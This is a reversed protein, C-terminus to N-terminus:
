QSRESVSFYLGHEIPKFHSLAREAEPTMLYGGWRPPLTAEPLVIIDASEIKAVERQTQRATMLGEVFFSGAPPEFEPYLIEVAGAYHLVAARRGKSLALVRSWEDRVQPSSWLNATVPTRSTTRWAAISDKVLGYYTGAAIVIIACFAYSHLPREIPVAAAGAILIYSYYVWSGSNGFFVFVFALHLCACSFIVADRRTAISDATTGINEWLRRAAPIAGWVLYATAVLWLGIVTGAYYHWNVHPADWLMSGTGGFFGMNQVRYADAGSIPFATRWLVDAGFVIGLVACLSIGVIIARRVQDFWVTPSTIRRRYLDLAMLTMLLAAYVFGMSPKAFIAAITLALANARAGRAQEALAFCILVAEIGHAFNWYTPPVARGIAIFLFILQLPKFALARAIRAVGCAVGIQCAICAAQYGAPTLPFARFWALSALLGLLGYHYGFDIVPRYGHSVLYFITLNSGPDGFAFPAFNLTQPLWLLDWLLIVGSLGIALPLWGALDARQSSEPVISINM